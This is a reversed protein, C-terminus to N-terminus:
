RGGREFHERMAKVTPHTEPVQYHPPDKFKKWNGGWEIGPLMAHKAASNYPGVATVYRGGNDFLGIDWAMGFNHWSRGATANTVIPGPESRGQRYLAAQEAYTRTGSIVRADLGQGRLKKLSQRCLTQAKVQLSRINRESRADFTGLNNAIAACQQDFASVAADTKPGWDGDLKHPYLGCCSLLRQLFLVDNGFLRESM